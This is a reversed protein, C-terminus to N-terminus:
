LDLNLEAGICKSIDSCSKKTCAKAADLAGDTYVKVVKLCTGKSLDKGCAAAADSWADCLTNM